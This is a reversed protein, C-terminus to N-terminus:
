QGGVERGFARPLSLVTMVRGHFHTCTFIRAPKHSIKVATEKHGTLLMNICDLLYNTEGGWDAALCDFM